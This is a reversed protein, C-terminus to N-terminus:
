PRGAAHVPVPDRVSNKLFTAIADQVRSRGFDAEVMSRARRGMAERLPGDSLALKLCASLDSADGRRAIWGTEGPRVSDRCGTADTTVVPINSASAELVVNPFGERLSPLCLVDMASYAAAPDEMWPLHRTRVGGLALEGLLQDAYGAEEESGVLLVQLDVAERTDAVAQVMVSLGKSRTLRGVYGVVPLSPALDLETRTERRRSPSPPSFRGLDVGNSSGGGLVVIKDGKVLGRAVCQERLSPSVALVSTSARMVILELLYLLWATPVRSTELRLGRLHYIRVPVRCLRAALIGLLGAKPTGVMVAAPRLQRVLRTWRVLAVLDAWPSPNRRMPIVHITAGEVSAVPAGVVLDVSWGDRALRGPLGEMLRLSVPDTVGLIVRNTPLTM